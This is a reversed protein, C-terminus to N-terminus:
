KLIPQGDRLTSSPSLVVQEDQRLGSLVQLWEGDRVGTKIIRLHLKGDQVVFAREVQGIQSHASVSMWLSETSGAPWNVRAYQGSRVEADTPVDLKALRTRSAPDAAPSWESLKAKILEGNAEVPIVDGYAQASLSDPVQVHIQRLGTGEITLM